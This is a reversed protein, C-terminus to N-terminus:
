RQGYLRDGADGLGPVIWGNADLCDDVAACVIAVEVGDRALREVAEPAVVAAVACTAAAGRERLTTCVQGLSGGTAVMPDLVLAIRGSLLAPVQVLYCEAELTREDRRLGMFGVAATSVVDLAGELMGLGARLVPVLVPAREASTPLGGGPRLAEHVLARTVAHLHHRFPARGAELDRLARLHEVVSPHGVEVVTVSGNARRRVADTM